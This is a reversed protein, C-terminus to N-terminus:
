TATAASRSSCRGQLRPPDGRKRRGDPVRGPLRRRYRAGVKELIDAIRDIIAELLAVFISEANRLNTDAKTAQQVFTRFVSPEAYRVTVLRGGALIFTVPCAEPMPREGRFM